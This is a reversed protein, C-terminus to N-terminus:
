SLSTSFIWEGCTRGASDAALAYCSSLHVPYSTAHSRKRLRIRVLEDHLLEHLRFVGVRMAGDV